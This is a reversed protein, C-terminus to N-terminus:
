LSMSKKNLRPWHWPGGVYGITNAHIAGDFPLCDIIDKAKEGRLRTEMVVFITPDHVRVLERVHNQFNSKLAGRSNWIIINMVFIHNPTCCEDFPPQSKTEKKLNWGMRNLMETSHGRRLMLILCYKLIGMELQTILYHLNFEM